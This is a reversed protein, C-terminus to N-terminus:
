ILTCKKNDGFLIYGFNDNLICSYKCDYLTISEYVLMFEINFIYIIVKCVGHDRWDTEYVVFHLLITSGKFFQM